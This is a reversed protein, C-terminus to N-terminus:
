GKFLFPKVNQILRELEPQNHHLMPHEWHGPTGNACAKALQEGVKELSIGCDKRM